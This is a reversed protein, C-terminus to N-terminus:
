LGHLENHAQWYFSAWDYMSPKDRLQVLEDRVGLYWTRSADNLGYVCTKLKWILGHKKLETPSEIFIDREISQGQLFASKM